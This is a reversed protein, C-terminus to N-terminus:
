MCTANYHHLRLADLPARPTPGVRSVQQKGRESPGDSSQFSFRMVNSGVSVFFVNLCLLWFLAGKEAATEKKM